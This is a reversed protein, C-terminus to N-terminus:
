ITEKTTYPQKQQQKNKHQTKQTYYPKQDNKTEKM